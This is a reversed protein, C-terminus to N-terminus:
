LSVTSRVVYTAVRMCAASFPAMSRVRPWFSEQVIVSLAPGAPQAPSSGTVVSMAWMRPPGPEDNVACFFSTDAPSRSLSSTSRNSLLTSVQALVDPFM